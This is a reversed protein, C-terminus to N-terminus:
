KQGAGKCARAKTALGLNPNRYNHPLNSSSYTSTQLFGYIKNPYVISKVQKPIKEVFCPIKYYKSEYKIIICLHM